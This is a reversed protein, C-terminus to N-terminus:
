RTGAKKRRPKPKKAPEVKKPWWRRSDIEAAQFPEARFKKELDVTRLLVWLGDRNEFVEIAREDVDVLWAYAVGHEAYLPLKRLRDHRATGPSLIECVWDPMLTCYAVDPFEPLRERRWGALDPSVIREHEVLHIEPEMLIWWGGPGGDSGDHDFLGEIRGSLKTEVRAHWMRPRPFLFLEGDILEATIGEPAALVDDYTAVPVTPVASM